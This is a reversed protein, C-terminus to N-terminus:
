RLSTWWRLELAFSSFMMLTKLM